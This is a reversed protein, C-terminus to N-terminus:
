EDRVVGTADLRSEGDGAAVRKTQSEFSLIADALVRGCAADALPQGPPAHDDYVFFLTMLRRTGLLLEGTLGIHFWYPHEIFRDDGYLLVYGGLGSGGRDPRVVTVPVSRGGVPLRELGAPVAGTRYAVALEPHHYLSTFQHSRVVFLRTTGYMREVFDTSEFRRQVWRAERPTATGSLAGLRESVASARRGDEVPGARLPATIAPLWALCLLVLIAKAYRTSM